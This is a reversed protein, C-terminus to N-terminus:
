KLAAQGALSIVNDQSGSGGSVGIAGVVKGYASPQFDRSPPSIDLDRM